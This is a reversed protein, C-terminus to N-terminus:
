LIDGHDRMTEEVTTDGHKKAYAKSVFRGTISSRWIHRIGKLLKGLM